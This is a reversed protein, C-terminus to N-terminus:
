FNLGITIQIPPREAHLCGKKELQAIAVEVDSPSISYTKDKGGALAMEFTNEESFLEPDIEQLEGNIPQELRLILAIYATKNLVGAAFLDKIVDRTIKTETFNVKVKDPIKVDALENKTQIMTSAM